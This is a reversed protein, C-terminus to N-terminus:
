FKHGETKFIGIITKLVCNLTNSTRLLDRIHKKFDAFVNNHNPTCTIISSQTRNTNIVIEYRVGSHKLTFYM